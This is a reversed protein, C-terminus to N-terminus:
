VQSVALTNKDYHHRITNLSRLLNLGCGSDTSNFEWSIVFNKTNSQNLELVGKRELFSLHNSTM